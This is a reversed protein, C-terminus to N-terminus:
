GESQIQELFKKLTLERMAFIIEDPLLKQTAFEIESILSITLLSDIWKQSAITENLAVSFDYTPSPKNRNFWKEVILLLSNM